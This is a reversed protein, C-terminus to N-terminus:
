PKKSLTSVSLFLLNVVEDLRSYYMISNVAPTLHQTICKLIGKKETSFRDQSHKYSFSFRYVSTAHQGNKGYKPM